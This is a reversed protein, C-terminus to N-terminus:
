KCQTTRAKTRLYAEADQPTVLDPFRVSLAERTVVMRKTRIEHAYEAHLLCCLRYGSSHSCSVGVAFHDEDLEPLDVAYGWRRLQIPLTEVLLGGNRLVAEDFEASNIPLATMADYDAKTGEWAVGATVRTNVLDDFYLPDSAVQKMTTTIQRDIDRAMRKYGPPREGALRACNVTLKAVRVKPDDFGELRLLPTPRNM